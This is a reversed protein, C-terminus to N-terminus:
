SPRPTGKVTSSSIQAGLAWLLRVGAVGVGEYGARGTPFGVMLVGLRIDAEVHGLM